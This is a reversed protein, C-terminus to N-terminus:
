SSIGIALRQKVTAAGSTAKVTITHTSASALPKGSIVATGNGLDQFTLGAEAGTLHVSISAGAGVGTTTITFSQTAPGSKSFNAAAASSIALVHVTFTQTVDPGIGNNAHITFSYNGGVAPGVGGLKATGAKTGKGPKFTMWAPLGVASLTAAPHGTTTVTFHVKRGAAIQTSAGSDIAATNSTV